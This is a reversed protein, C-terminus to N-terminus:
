APVAPTGAAAPVAPTGAAASAAILQQAGEDLRGLLRVLTARDAESLAGFIQTLLREWAANAM